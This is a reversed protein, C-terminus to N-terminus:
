QETQNRLLDTYFITNGILERQHETPKKFTSQLDGPHVGRVMMLEALERADRQTKPVNKLYAKFIDNGDNGARVVADALRANKVTLKQALKRSTQGIAPVVVAGIGGGLGGGLMGGVAGGGGMGMYGMLMNSAQGESFAFRGLMKTLNSSKTGQIVQTIAKKEEPSFKNWKKTNRRIADLQRRIGNEFGTAQTEAKRFAEEILESKKARGWLNRADKYMDGIEGGGAAFDSKGLNDMFDDVMDSAIMAVRKEDPDASMKANNLMRRTIDIDTVNANQEAVKGLEDIFVNVKPHLRPHYGSKKLRAQMMNNLRNLNEQKVVAGSQDIQKYINSATEKLGEKTPAAQTMLSKASQSGLSKVVSNAFSASLPAAIGGIMEGTDGGLEQGIEAGVGSAGALAAEAQPTTQGLSRVVGRGVGEGAQFMPLAKAAGRTVAGAAGGPGVMEGGTQIADRALGPEMFNGTTVPAAAETLSPIQYDSGAMQMLRNAPVRLANGFFDATKTVGRTVAAGLEPLAPAHEEVMQGAQQYMSPKSLGIKSSFEELDMDSYYKKHLAGALQDDSLDDYQPYKKRVDAFQM